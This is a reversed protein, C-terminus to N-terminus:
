LINKIAAYYKKDVHTHIYIYIGRKKYHVLGKGKSMYITQATNQHYLCGQSSSGEM